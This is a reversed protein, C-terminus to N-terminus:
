EELILLSRAAGNKTSRLFGMLDFEKRDRRSAFKKEWSKRENRERQTEEKPLLFSILLM